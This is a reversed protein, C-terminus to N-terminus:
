AEPSPREDDHAARYAEVPASGFARRALHDELLPMLLAFIQPDDHNFVACHGPDRGDFRAIQGSPLLMYHVLGGETRMCLPRLQAGLGAIRYAPHRGTPHPSIGSMVDENAWDALDAPLLVETLVYREADYRAVVLLDDAPLAWVRSTPYDTVLRGAASALRDAFTQLNDSRTNDEYYCHLRRGDILGRAVIAAGRPLTAGAAGNSRPVCVPLTSLPYKEYANWVAM